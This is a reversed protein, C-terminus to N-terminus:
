RYLSMYNKVVRAIIQNDSASGAGLLAIRDGIYNIKRACRDAVM